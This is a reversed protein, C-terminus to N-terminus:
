VRTELSASSPSPPSAAGAIMPRPNQPNWTLLQNGPSRQQQQKEQDEEKEEKQQQQASEQAHQPQAVERGQQLTKRRKRVLRSYIVWLYIMCAVAVMTMNWIFGSMDVVLGVEAPISPQMNRLAPLAFLVTAAFTAEDITIDEEEGFFGAYTASTFILVALCWMLLVIFISVFRTIGPRKAWVTFFVESGAPNKDKTILYRKQPNRVYYQFGAGKQTIAVVFPLRYSTSNDDTLSFSARIHFRYKDFPYMRLHREAFVPVNDLAKSAQDNIGKTAIKIVEASNVNVVLSSGDNLVNFGKNVNTAKHSAAPTTGFWVNLLASAVFKKVDVDQIVIAVFITNSPLSRVLSKPLESDLSYDFVDKFKLCEGMATGVYPPMSPASPPPPSDPPQPPPPFRPQFDNAPMVNFSYYDYSYPDEAPHWINDDLPNLGCLTVIPGEKTDRSSIADYSLGWPLSLAALLILIHVLPVIASPVPPNSIFEVLRKLGSCVAAYCVGAVHKVRFLCSRRADSKGGSDTGSSASADGAATGACPLKIVKRMKQM